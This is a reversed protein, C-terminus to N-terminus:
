SIPLSVIDSLFPLANQIVGAAWIANGGGLQSLEGLLDQDGADSKIDVKGGEVTAGNLNVSAARALLSIGGFSSTGLSYNTHQASLTVDGAKHTTDGEGVQALLRAGSGLTVHPHNFGVNFIPNVFDPNESTLKLAGSNDVSAAHLYDTSSS